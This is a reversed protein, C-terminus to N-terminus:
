GVGGKCDPGLGDRVSALADMALAAKEPMRLGVRRKGEGYGACLAKERWHNMACRMDGVEARLENRKALGCFGGVLFAVVNSGIVLAIWYTTDM